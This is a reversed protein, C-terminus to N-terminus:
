KEQIIIIQFKCKKLSIPIIIWLEKTPPGPSNKLDSIQVISGIGGAKLNLDRVCGEMLQVRWRVFAERKEESELLKNDRDKDKLAAYINYCVPHGGKDSGNMFGVSEFDPGLEKVIFRKISVSKTQGIRHIRMIAQEEVVPNWWPDNVKYRPLRLFLPPPAPPSVPRLSASVALDPSLPLLPSHLFLPPPAPPPVPLLSASPTSRSPLLSARRASSLSRLLSPHLCRLLPEDLPPHHGSCLLISIPLHSVKGVTVQRLPLLRSSSLPSPLATWRHRRSSSAIGKRRAAIVSLDVGVVVDAGGRTLCM